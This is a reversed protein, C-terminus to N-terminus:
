WSLPRILGRKQGFWTGLLGVAIGMGLGVDKSYAGLAEMGLNVFGFSFM